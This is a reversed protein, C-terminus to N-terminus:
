AEISAAIYHWLDAASKMNKMQLKCWKERSANIDM